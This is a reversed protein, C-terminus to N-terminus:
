DFEPARKEAFAAIGEQGDSSGMAATIMKSEYEGATELSHDAGHYIVRKAEGLAGTAGTALKQALERTASDVDDDPVIRNVLGWQEAEQASLVRNTLTLDLMRRLGIHRSLFYSSTGDPTVGARTYAMTYKASEGSIVLDFASMLSLGAGGAAGRIGAIFPKPINNMLNIAAHFDILMDHAVQPLREGQEHFFKLDGGACFVKGEATIAVAKVNDDYKIDLMAQRLERAQTPNVANAGQPRNLHLHGVRDRVEYTITEFAM